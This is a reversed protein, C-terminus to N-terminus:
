PTGTRVMNAWIEYLEVEAEIIDETFGEKRAVQEVCVAATLLYESSPDKRNEQGQVYVKKLAKKLVDPVIRWHRGCM